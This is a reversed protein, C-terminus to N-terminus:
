QCFLKIYLVNKISPWDTIICTFEAKSFFVIHYHKRIIERFSFFIYQNEISFNQQKNSKTQLFLLILSNLKKLTLKYNIEQREFGVLTCNATALKSFGETILRFRAPFFLNTPKVFKPFTSLLNQNIYYTDSNFISVNITLNKISQNKKRRLQTSIFVEQKFHKVKFSKRHFQFVVSQCLDTNRVIEPCTSFSFQFPGDFAEFNPMIHLLKNKM